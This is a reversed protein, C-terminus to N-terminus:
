LEIETAMAAAGYITRVTFSVRVAGKLTEFGFDSVNEIRDDQVLAETIRRKLESCAFDTPRGLLDIIETGFRRSYIIYKYRETDLILRAAQAAAALGSASGAITKRDFNMYFTKDPLTSLIFDSQESQFPIM